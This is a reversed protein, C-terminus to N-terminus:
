YGPPCIGDERWKKIKRNFKPQAFGIEMYWKLLNVKGNLYIQHMPKPQFRIDSQLTDYCTCFSYGLECFLKELDQVLKKSAFSVKIVPYNHGRISKKKFCVSFDTDALGRLFAFKFPLDAEKILSPIQVTYTKRGTPVGCIKNLFQLLGKSRVTLLVSKSRKDRRYKPMCNFLLTFLKCVHNLYQSEECNGSIIIQSQIFTKILYNSRKTLSLHGDGIMIGIFEALEVSLFAPLTLNRRRDNSSLEIMSLDFKIM